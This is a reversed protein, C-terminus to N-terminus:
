GRRGRVRAYVARLPQAARFLKTARLADLEATVAALQAETAALRAEIDRLAAIAEDGRREAGVQASVADEFWALVDLLRLRQAEAEDDLRELLTILEDVTPAAGLQLGDFDHTRHTGM